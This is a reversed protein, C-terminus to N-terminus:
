GRHTAGDVILVSKRRQENYKVLHAPSTKVQSTQAGDSRREFEDRHVQDSTTPRGKHGEIAGVRVPQGTLRECLLVKVQELRGEVFYFM